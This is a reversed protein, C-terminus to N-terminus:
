LSVGAKKTKLLRDATIGVVVASLIALILNLKYPLSIALVAVV